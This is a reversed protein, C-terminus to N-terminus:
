EVPYNGRQLTCLTIGDSVLSGSYICCIIYTGGCPVGGFSGCLECDTCVKCVLKDVCVLETKKTCIGPCNKFQQVTFRQPSPPSGPRPPSRMSPITLPNPPRGGTCHTSNMQVAPPTCGCIGRSRGFSDVAKLTTLDLNGLCKGLGRELLPFNIGKM